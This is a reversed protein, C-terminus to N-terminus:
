DTKTLSVASKREREWVCNLLTSPGLTPPWLVTLTTAIWPHGAHDLIATQIAPENSHNTKRIKKRNERTDKKNTQTKNRQTQDSDATQNLQNRLHNTWRERSENKIWKISRSIWKREKREDKLHQEGIRGQRDIDTGHDTQPRGTRNTAKARVRLNPNTQSRKRNSRVTQEDIQTRKRTLKILWNKGEEVLQKEIM